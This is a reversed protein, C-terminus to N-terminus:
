PRTLADFDFLLKYSNSRILGHPVQNLRRMECSGFRMQLLHVTSLEMSIRFSQAM